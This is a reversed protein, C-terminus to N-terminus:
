SYDMDYIYTWHVRTFADNDIGINVLVCSTAALRGAADLVEQPVGAIMRVLAPLAISSVLFDYDIDKGNSFQLWKTQPDIRTVQHQLQINM